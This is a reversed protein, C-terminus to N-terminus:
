LASTFFAALHQQLRPACMRDRVLELHDDAASSNRVHAGQLEGFM